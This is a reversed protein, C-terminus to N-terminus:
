CKVTNKLCLNSIMRWFNGEKLIIGHLQECKGVSQSWGLRMACNTEIPM